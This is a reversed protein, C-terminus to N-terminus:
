SSKRTARIAHKSWAIPEWPSFRDIRVDEFWRETERRVHHPDLTRFRYAVELARGVLSPRVPLHVLLAGPKSVRALEALGSSVSVYELVGCILVADFTADRFPLALVNAQTFTAEDARAAHRQSTRRRAQTVSAHSIDVASMRLRSTSAGLLALELLGPGCGADLVRAGEPVPLPHRRFHRVLAPEYQTVLGTAAYLPAIRDYFGRPGPGGAM